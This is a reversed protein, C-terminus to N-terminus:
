DTFQFHLKELLHRDAGVYVFYKGNVTVIADPNTVLNEIGGTCIPVDSCGPAGSASTYGVVAVPEGNALARNVEVIYRRYRDIPAPFRALLAEDSYFMLQWELLGNMSFVHGVGRSRLDGVVRELRRAESLSNPPNKWLFTFARFERMSLSGLLLVAGTLAFASRKSLLRRDILDVVEVGALLVLPGSMPLLYRADRARLLLWEAVLTSCVSLFLVHSVLCHRRTLLRYLQMMALAPIVACWVVGLTRTVPGPPDLAWWLYYSGTLNVRIQEAILALSRIPEPNGLTIAGSWTKVLVIAAAPVALYSVAYSLRPRSLFVVVLIPLVGPLWLPQALYIVFSLAGAMVWRAIAQRERDQVLLWLLAAAATFSTIYGGRAKMSWVAWAPSLLLVSTIWFSRTNGLIRSQALFLFLVGATWLALMALKLALANTGVILFALAGAAAEVSVLGYHQGWFFIPFEKGQVLHKAMLGLTCEDGDLLLNPSLLQPLRSVVAIAALAVLCGWTRSRSRDIPRAPTDAQPPM